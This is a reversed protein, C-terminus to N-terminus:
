PLRSQLPFDDFRKDSSSFPHLNDLALLSRYSRKVLNQKGYKPKQPDVQLQNIDAPLATVFIDFCLEM